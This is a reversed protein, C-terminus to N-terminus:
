GELWLPRSSAVGIRAALSLWTLKHAACYRYFGARYEAIAASEEAKADAAPEYVATAMPEVLVNWGATRMRRCWDVDAFHSGLTEDMPGAADMATRRVLTCAGTVWDVQTTGNVEQRLSTRGGSMRHTIVNVREVLAQRLTPFPGFSGQWTNGDPHTLRPAVVGAARNSRARSVLPRLCLDDLAADPDLLLVFEDSTAAVGANVVAARSGDVVKVFHVAPYEAAVSAVADPASGSDVVVVRGPAVQSVASAVAADLHTGDGSLPIVVDVDPIETAM